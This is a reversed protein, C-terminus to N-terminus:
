VKQKTFFKRNILYIPWGVVWLVVLGVSSYIIFGISSFDYKESSNYVAIFSMAIIFFINLTIILGNIWTRFDEAPSIKKSFQYSIVNVLAITIMAAYFLIERGVSVSEIGEEMVVVQEPLSAYVYLLNGLVALMSLFRIASFIKVIM